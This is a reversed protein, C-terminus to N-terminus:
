TTPAPVALVVVSAASGVAAAVIDNVRRLVSVDTVPYAPPFPDLRRITTLVDGIEKTGTSPVVYVPADLLMVVAVSRPEPLRSTNLLVAADDRVSVPRVAPVM